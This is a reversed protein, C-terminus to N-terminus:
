LMGKGRCSLVMCMPSSRHWGSLQVRLCYSMRVTVMPGHFNNRNFFANMKFVSWFWCRDVIILLINGLRFRWSESSFRVIQCARDCYEGCATHGNKTLVTAQAIGHLSVLPRGRCPAIAFLLHVSIWDSPQPSIRQKINKTEVFNDLM